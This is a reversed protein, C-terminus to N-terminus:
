HVHKRMVDVVTVTSWPAEYVRGFPTRAAVRHLVRPFYKWEGPNVINGTEDHLRTRRHRDGVVIKRLIGVGSAM